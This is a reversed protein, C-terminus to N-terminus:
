FSHNYITLLRIITLKLIIFHIFLYVQLDCQWEPHIIDRMAVLGMYNAFSENLWLGDWFEM